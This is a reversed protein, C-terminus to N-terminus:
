LGFFSLAANDELLKKHPAVLTQNTEPGTPQVAGEVRAQPPTDPTEGSQIDEVMRSVDMNVYPLGAAAYAQERVWRYESLSFKADNLARVQARKADVFTKALDKYANIVRPADLVTGEDKDMREALDKYERDLEDFRAGLHDRLQQQVRVYREVQDATLEGTDPPVFTADDAIGREIEPIEGLAAFEGVTEKVKNVLLYSGVAGAVLLIVLLIGCGIAVKKM